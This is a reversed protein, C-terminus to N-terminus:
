FGCSIRMQEPSACTSWTAPFTSSTQNDVSCTCLNSDCTIAYSRGNGQWECMCSFSGDPLVGGGGCQTIALAGADVNPPLTTAAQSFCEIVGGPETTCCLQPEGEPVQWGTPCV